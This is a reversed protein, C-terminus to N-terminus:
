ADAHKARDRLANLFDEDNDFRTTRSAALDADAEREGALWEPTWFWAQEPNRLLHAAWAEICAEPTQGVASAADAIARYADDSLHITRPM